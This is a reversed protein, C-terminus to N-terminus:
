IQDFDRLSLSLFSSCCCTQTFGLQCSQPKYVVLSPDEFLTQSLISVIGLLIFPATVYDSPGSPPLRSTKNRGACVGWSRIVSGGTGHSSPWFHGGVTSTERSCYNTWAYVHSGGRGIMAAWKQAPICHNTWTYDHSELLAFEPNDASSTPLTNRERRREPM